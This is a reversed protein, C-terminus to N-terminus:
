EYDVGFNTNLLSNWQKLIYKEDFVGNNATNYSCIAMEKLRQPHEILYEVKMEIFSAMDKDFLQSDSLASMKTHRQHDFQNNENWPSYVSDHLFGNEGDKVMEPIAYISSGVYVCGYKMSELTVLSFSDMRTPNLLIHTESYLDHLTEKDLNYDLLRIHLSNIMQLLNSDLKELPTVITLEVDTISYKTYINNLAALIEKGGKLYFDSSIYLCNITTNWSKSFVGNPILPYIQFVNDFDYNYIRDITSACAESICIIGKLSPSSFLKKLRHKSLTTNMRQDSYNVLAYPNELIVYYPQNTNVLRNYSILKEGKLKKGPKVVQFLAFYDFIKLSVIKHLLLHWRKSTEFSINTNYEIHYNSQNKNIFDFSECLFGRIRNVVFFTNM